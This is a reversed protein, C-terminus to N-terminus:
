FILSFYINRLGLSVHLTRYRVYVSNIGTEKDDEYSKLEMMSTDAKHVGWRIRMPRGSLFMGNLNDMAVGAEEQNVMTVFGYGLSTGDKKSKKIQVEIVTGYTSFVQCLEDETCFRGLDGIFLCNNETSSIMPLPLSSPHSVNNSYASSEDDFYDPQFQDHQFYESM